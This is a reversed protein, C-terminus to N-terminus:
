EILPYMVVPAGEGLYPLARLTNFDIWEIAEEETM